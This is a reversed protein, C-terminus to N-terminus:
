LFVILLQTLPHSHAAGGVLCPRLLAAGSRRDDAAEACGAPSLLGTSAAHWDIDINCVRALLNPLRAMTIGTM